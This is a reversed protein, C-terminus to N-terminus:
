HEHMIKSECNLKYHARLSGAQFKCVLKHRNFIQKKCPLQLSEVSPSIRVYWRSNYLNLDVYM